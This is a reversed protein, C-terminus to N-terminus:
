CLEVGEKGANHGGEPERLYAIDGITQGWILECEFKGAVYQQVADKDLKGPIRYQLFWAQITTYSVGCKDTLFTYIESRTEKNAWWCFGHRYSFCPNHMTCGCIKCVGNM